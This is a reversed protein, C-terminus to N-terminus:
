RRPFDGSDNRPKRHWYTVSDNREAHLIELRLGKFHAPRHIQGDSRDIGTAGTAATEEQAGVQVEELVVDLASVVLVHDQVVAVVFGVDDGALRGAAVFDVHGLAGQHASAKVFVLELLLKSM